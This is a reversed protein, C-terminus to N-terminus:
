NTLCIIYGLSSLASSSLLLVTSIIIIIIDRISRYLWSAQRSLLVSLTPIVDREYGVHDCPSDVARCRCSVCTSSHIAQRTCYCSGKLTQPRAGDTTDLHLYREQATLPCLERVSVFESSIRRFNRFSINCINFVILKIISLIRSHHISYTLLNYM